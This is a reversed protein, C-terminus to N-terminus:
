FALSENKGYLSKLCILFIVVLLYKYYNIKTYINQLNMM